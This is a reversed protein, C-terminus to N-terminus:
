KVKNSQPVNTYVFWTHEWIGVLIDQETPV